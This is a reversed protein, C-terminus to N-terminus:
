ANRSLPRVIREGEQVRFITADDSVFGLIAFSRRFFALFVAISKEDATVWRYFFQDDLKTNARQLVPFNKLLPDLERPIHDAEIQMNTFWRYAIGGTVPLIRSTHKYFLACFLKRAVNEIAAHIRPGVALIPLEGDPFRYRDLRYSTAAREYQAPTMKMERLVEPDNAAVARISEQVELLDRDTPETASHIRSLMAVIQEDFRSAQNCEFCAPFEFGEPWQRGDFLARSPVHDPGETAAMGGCFCCYPHAALFRRKHDRGRGM